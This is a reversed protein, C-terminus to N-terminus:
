PQVSPHCGCPAKGQVCLLCDTGTGDCLYCDVYRTGRCFQCPRTALWIHWAGFLVGLAGAIVPIPKDLVVGIIAAAAAIPIALTAIRQTRTM